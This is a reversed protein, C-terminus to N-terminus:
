GVVAVARRRPRYGRDIPQPRTNRERSDVTAIHCALCRRKDTRIFMARPHGCIPCTM